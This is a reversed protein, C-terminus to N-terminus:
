SFNMLALVKEFDDPQQTERAVKNVTVFGCKLCRHTLQYGKKSHYSVSVPQMLGACYGARDGPYDDVHKSYLCVPCHNRYSGNTVPLVDTGCYECTFGQNEAKRSM